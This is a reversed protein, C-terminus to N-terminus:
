GHAAAGADAPTRVSVLQSAPFLCSFRSGEGPTSKINLRGGQSALAHKVIALGLGTGGTNSNRSNDVRYFRETLHPIHEEDIGPGSDEVVVRLGSKSRSCSVRIATGPPTHRVANFVLNSFASHLESEVANLFFPGSLQGEIRHEQYENLERTDKIIRELLSSIEVPEPHRQEAMSELRSLMTLGKLLNAMRVSQGEMQDLIHHLSKDAKPHIQLTELYGQLVTLPTRLEHSLNAIFDRRMNELRRLRTVDRLLIIRDGNKYKTVHAELWHQSDPPYKITLPNAFKGKSLYSKFRPERILKLVPMGTAASTKLHFRQKAQRNFWQIRGAADILVSADRVGEMLDRQRALAAKLKKTERKHARKEKMTEELFYRFIGRVQPVRGKKKRAMWKELTHIQVLSWSIYLTMGAILAFRPADLILGLGLSGLLICMILTIESFLYSRM